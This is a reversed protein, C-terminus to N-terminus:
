VISRLNNIDHFILSSFDSSVESTRDQSDVLFTGKGQHFRVMGIASLKSLAERLVILSVQYHNSLFKQSPLKEGYQYKGEKVDKLFANVVDDVLSTRKIM